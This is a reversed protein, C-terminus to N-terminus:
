SGAVARQAGRALTLWRYVTPDRSVGWFDAVAQAGGGPRGVDEAWEWVALVRSWHGADWARQGRQKPQALQRYYPEDPYGGGAAAAALHVLQSIPLRALGAASLRAAAARVEVTLRTLRARGGSTDVAVAVAFPAQPDDVVVTGDGQRTVQARDLDLLPAAHQTV